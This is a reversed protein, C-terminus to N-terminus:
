KGTYPEYRASCLAYIGIDGDPTQVAVNLDLPEAFYPSGPSRDDLRPPNNLGVVIALEGERPWKRNVMGPKFQIKDGVKFTHPELYKTVDKELRAGDFPVSKEDDDGGGGLMRAFMEAERSM